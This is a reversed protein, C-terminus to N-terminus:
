RESERCLPPKWNTTRLSTLSRKVFQMPSISQKAKLLASDRRWSQPSPTAPTCNRAHESKWNQLKRQKSPRCLRAGLQTINGIDLGNKIVAYIECMQEGDRVLRSCNLLPSIRLSVPIFPKKTPEGASDLNHKNFYTGESDLCLFGNTKWLIEELQGLMSKINNFM